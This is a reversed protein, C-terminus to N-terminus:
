PDTWAFVVYRRGTRSTSMLEALLRTRSRFWRAQAASLVGRDLNSKWYWSILDVLFSSFLPLILDSRVRLRDFYLRTEHSHLAQALASARELGMGELTFYFLDWGPLCRPRAREWDLALLSGHSDLVQLNWPSFDGHAWVFPLRIDGIQELSIRLAEELLEVDESGLRGIPRLGPIRQLLAQAFGSGPLPEESVECNALGVLAPVIESLTSPHRRARGHSAGLVLVSARSIVAYGLVEPIQFTSFSFSRLRRLTDEENQVLERTPENWGIKAYALIRGTRDTIQVVPKRHPGPTGLYIAFSVDDSAVTERLYRFLERITVEQGSAGSSLGLMVRPLRLQLVGHKLGARMALKALHGRLTTPAYLELAEVGVRSSDLPVLYGRGDGFAILGYVLSPDASTPIGGRPSIGDVAGLAFRAYQMPADLDICNKGRIDRSLGPILEVTPSAGAWM